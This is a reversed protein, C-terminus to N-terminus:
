YPAGSTRLFRLELAYLASGARLLFFSPIATSALDGDKCSIQYPNTELHIGPPRSQALLSTKGVKSDANMAANVTLVFLLEEPAMIHRM